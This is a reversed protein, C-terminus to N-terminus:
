RKRHRLTVTHKVKAPGLRATASPGALRNKGGVATVTATFSEFGLVNPISVSHVSGKLVHTEIRGDSGTVKVRYIRAGPVASWKVLAANRRRAIHVKRVRRPRFPGPATYHGVPLERVEVGQTNLLYAVISRSPSLAEEPTFRLTGRANKVTGLVHTSDKGREVFRVATGPVHHAIDYALAYGGHGSHHVHVRLSAPAVDEATELKSLPGSGPMTAVTWKGAKPHKLYILVEGPNPGLAAIFQGPVSAVQKASSPTTYSQGDPGALHVVPSGSSSTIRLEQGEGGEPLNFTESEGSAAASAVPRRGAVGSAQGPGRLFHASEEKVFGGSHKVAPKEKFEKLQDSCNSFAFFGGGIGSDAFHYHGEVGFGNIAACGAVYENNVLVQGEIEIIWIKLYAEGQAQWLAGHPNNTEDWFSVGGRVEAVPEKSGFPLQIQVKLAADVYGDSYVDAALSAIQNEKFSLRGEGGFYGLEPPHENAERYRFELELELVEAISAGLSGGFELPEVALTAGIENLFIGAYIPVGPKIKLSMAAKKFNGKKFAMEAKLKAVEEGFTITGKAQWTDAKSEEEYSPFYYQFSADKVKFIPKLAAEGIEFKMSQLEIGSEDNVRVELAGTAELNVEKINLGVQVYLLTQGKNNLYVDVLGVLPFNGPVEACVIHGNPPPCCGAEKTEGAKCNKGIGFVYLLTKAPKAGGTPTPTTGGGGSGGGGGAATHARSGSLGHFIGEFKPPAGGHLELPIPETELNREGLVMSGLPTNELQVYVHAGYLETESGGGLAVGIVTKIKLFGGSKPNLVTGNIELEGEIVYGDGLKQICEALLKADGIELTPQCEGEGGDPIFAKVEKPLSLGFKTTAHEHKSNTVILTITHVGPSLMIHAEPDTGTSTEETEGGKFNWGYSVIRGSGATSGAGSLTIPEGAHPNPTALALAATPPPPPPPGPPPTTAVTTTTTTESPAAEFALNDIAIEQSTVVGTSIAFYSIAGEGNLTAVVKQWAGSTAEVTGEAVKKGGSSYGVVRVLVNPSSTLDRVEVSLSGRAPGLLAGFTGQTNAAGFCTPLVAFNPKSAAENTATEHEVHPSGCNGAVSPQGFEEAKGLKLGESEWQNAVVTGAPVESGGPFHDFGIVTEAASAPVAPLLLFGLLAAAALAV